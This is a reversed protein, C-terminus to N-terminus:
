HDANMRQEAQAIPMSVKGLYYSGVIREDNWNTSPNNIVDTSTRTIAPAHRRSNSKNRNSRKYPGCCGTGVDLSIVERCGRTKPGGLIALRRCYDSQSTARRNEAGSQEYKCYAASCQVTSRRSVRFVIIIDTLQREFSSVKLTKANTPKAVFRQNAECM